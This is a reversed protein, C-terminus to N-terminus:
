TTTDFRIISINTLSVQKHSDGAARCPKLGQTELAVPHVFREPGSRKHPSKASRRRHWPMSVQFVSKALDTGIISVDKM